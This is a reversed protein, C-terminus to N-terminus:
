EFPGPAPNAGCVLVALKEDPAVEYEGSIVAALAAAGAPEVWQRLCQWLLRQAELIAEDTVTVCVPGHAVALDYCIQGIRKAGLANAAVGGVEVDVPGGADTTAWLTPCKEPEVAVIRRRGELWALAGAILGGGGVAIM